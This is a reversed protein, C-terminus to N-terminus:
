PESNRRVSRIARATAEVALARVADVPAVVPAVDPEVDATPAPVSIAVVADGDGGLHAPWIARAIGDHGSQALLHCATKDLVANTVIVGITTNELAARYTDLRERFAPVVRSVIDPDLPGDEVIDGISNVVMLASVIVDGSRVTATGIGSPVPAFGHWKSRTAGTGAGVAGTDFPGASARTSADYGDAAAPRVLSSGVGLDYIVAGIVIPIRAYQTPFGREHEVCWRVVGECTALGFASGGSLVVADIGSVLRTPDLLEFERTGPAGGRVEGSAVNGDPFLVVTCGTRAEVDTHHGVLVGPVDTLM